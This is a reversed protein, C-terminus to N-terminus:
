WYLGCSFYYPDEPEDIERREEAEIEAEIRRINHNLIRLNEQAIKYDFTHTLGRQEFEALQGICHRASYHLNGLDIRLQDIRTLTEFM